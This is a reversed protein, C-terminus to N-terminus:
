YESPQLNSAHVLLVGYKFNALKGLQNYMGCTYESKSVLLLGHRNSYMEGLLCQIFLPQISIM